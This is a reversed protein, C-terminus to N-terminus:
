NLKSRLSLFHRVQLLSLCNIQFIKAFFSIFFIFISLLFNYSNKSAINNMKYKLINSIKYTTLFAFGFSHFTLGLIERLTSQNEIKWAHITNSCNKSWTEKKFTNFCSPKGSFSKGKYSPLRRYRAKSKNTSLYVNSKYCVFDQFKILSVSSIYNFYIGTDYLIKISCFISGQNLINQSIMLGPEIYKQLINVMWIFYPFTLIQVGEGCPIQFLYQPRSIKFRSELLFQIASTRKFYWPWLLNFRPNM